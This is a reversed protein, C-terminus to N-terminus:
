CSDMAFRVAKDRAAEFSPLKIAFRRLSDRLGRYEFMYVAYNSGSPAMSSIEELNGSIQGDRENSALGFLATQMLIDEARAMAEEEAPAGGTSAMEVAVREDGEGCFVVRLGAQGSPLTVKAVQTDIVQM